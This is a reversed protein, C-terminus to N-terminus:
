HAVIIRQSIFQSGFGVYVVYVGNAFQSMDVRNIATNSKYVRNGQGDIIMINDVLVENENIVINLSGNTPNPFINVKLQPVNCWDTHKIEGVVGSTGTM